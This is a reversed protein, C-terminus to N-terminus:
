DHLPGRVPRIGSEAACRGLEPGGARRCHRRLNLLCREDPPALILVRRPDLSHAPRTNDAQAHVALRAAACVVMVRTSVSLRPVCVVPPSLVCGLTLASPRYTAKADVAVFRTGPSVLLRDSMKTLSRWVPAISRTLTFLSPVCAVLPPLKLGLMEASPRYTTKSVVAASAASSVCGHPAEVGVHVSM